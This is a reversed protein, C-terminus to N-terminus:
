GKGVNEAEKDLRSARLAAKVAETIDDPKNEEDDEHDEPEPLPVDEAQADLVNPKEGVIEKPTKWRLMLDNALVLHFSPYASIIEDFYYVGCNIEWIASAVRLGPYCHQLLDEELFFEFDYKPGKGEQWAKREKPSMDIEPKAPNLFSRAKIKGVIPLDPAFGHYFDRVDAEPKSVSIVEFGDIDPIQKASLEGKTALEQFRSAQEHSAIGAIAFKVVKRAAAPTLNRDAWSQAPVWDNTEEGSGHYRGGFLLSCSQNFSGPGQQILQVNKWLEVSAIDCIQRAKIINDKYEPCM